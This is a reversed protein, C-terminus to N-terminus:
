KEGLLVRTIEERTRASLLSDMDEPAALADMLQSLALVHQDADLAALAIVVRVPDNEASGFAVPPELTIVSICPHLVGDEPRAHPLALGPAIVIYPGLEEATRLMADVYRAEVAGARVLMEGAARVAGRWDAAPNNVAIQDPRLLHGLHLPSSQPPPM